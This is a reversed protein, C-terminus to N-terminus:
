YFFLFFKLKKLNIIQNEKNQTVKAKKFL